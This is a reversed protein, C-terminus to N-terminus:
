PLYSWPGPMLTAHGRPTQVYVVRLRAIDEQQARSLARLTKIAHRNKSSLKGYARLMKDAQAFRECAAGAEVLAQDRQDVLESVEERLRAAGEWAEDRQVEALGCEERAADREERLAQQYVEAQALDARLQDREQRYRQASDAEQQVRERMRACERRAQELERAGERCRAGVARAFAGLAAMAETPVARWLDVFEPLEEVVLQAALDEDVAQASSGEAAGTSGPAAGPVRV